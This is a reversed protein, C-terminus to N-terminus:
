LAGSFGIGVRAVWAFADVDILWEGAVGPMILLAGLPLGWTLELELANLAGEHDLVLSNSQFGHRLYGLGINLSHQGVPYLVLQPAVGVFYDVLGEDFPLAGEHKQTQHVRAGLKFKFGLWGSSIIEAFSFGIGEGVQSGWDGAHVGGFDVAFIAASRTRGRPEASAESPLLQLSLCLLSVWLAQAIRLPAVGM